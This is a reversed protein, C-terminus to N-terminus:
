IFILYPSIGEGAFDLPYYDDEWAEAACVFFSCLDDAVSRALDQLLIVVLAHIVVM